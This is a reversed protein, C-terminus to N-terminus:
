RLATRFLHHRMHSREDLTTRQARTLKLSGTVHRYGATYRRRIKPPGADMETEIVIDPMTEEVGPEALFRQPLTVPWIAM